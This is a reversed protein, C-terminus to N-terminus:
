IRANFHSPEHSGRVDDLPVAVEMCLIRDDVRPGRPDSRLVKSVRAERVVSFPVSSPGDDGLVCVERFGELRHEMGVEVDTSAIGDRGRLCRKRRKGCRGREPRPRGVIRGRDPPCAENERGIRGEIWVPDESNERRSLFRDRHLSEVKFVVPAVSRIREEIGRERGRSSADGNADEEVPAPTGDFRFGARVVVDDTPDVLPRHLFVHGDLRPEEAGASRDVSQVVLARHEVTARHEDRAHVPGM